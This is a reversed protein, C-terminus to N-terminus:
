VLIPVLSVATGVTVLEDSLTKRERVSVSRFQM